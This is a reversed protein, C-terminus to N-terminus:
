RRRVSHHLDPMASRGSHARVTPAEDKRSDLKEPQWRPPLGDEPLDYSCYCPGGCACGGCCYARGELVIPEWGIELGCNACRFGRHEGPEM